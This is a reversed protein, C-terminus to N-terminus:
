LIFKYNLILLIWYSSFVNFEYGGIGNEVFTPIRNLYNGLFKFFFIYLTMIINVIKFLLVNYLIFDSNLGIGAFFVSHFLIKVLHNESRHSAFFFFDFKLNNVRIVRKFFNLINIKIVRSSLLNDKIDFVKVLILLVFFIIKINKYFINKKYRQFFIPSSHYDKNKKNNNNNFASKILIKKYLM